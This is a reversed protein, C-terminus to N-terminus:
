ATPWGPLGGLDPREDTQRRGPHRRRSSIRKVKPWAPWTSAPSRGCPRSSTPSTETRRRSAWKWRSAGPGEGTEARWVQDEPFPRKGGCVKATAAADHGAPRANLWHLALWTRPLRIFTVGPTETIAADKPLFFYVNTRPRANLWVLAGKRQGLRDGGNTASAHSHNYDLSTFPIVTDVGRRPNEALLRFGNLNM